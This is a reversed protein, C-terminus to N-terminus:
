FKVEPTTNQTPVPTVCTGRFRFQGTKQHLRRIEFDESYDFDGTVEVFLRESIQYRSSPVEDRIRSSATRPQLYQAGLILLWSHKVFIRSRVNQLAERKLTRHFREIKGLGQPHYPRGHIM